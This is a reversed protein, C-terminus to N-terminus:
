NFMYKDRIPSGEFRMRVRDTNVHGCVLSYDWSYLQVNYSHM